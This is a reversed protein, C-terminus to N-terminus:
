PDTNREPDRHEPWEVRDPRSVAALNRTDNRAMTRAHRVAEVIGALDSGLTIPLEVSVVSKHERIWADWPGVGASAVRVLVEGRGATPRSVDDIRIVDPPGFRHIRVARM